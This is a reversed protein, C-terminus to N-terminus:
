PRAPLVVRVSVAGRLEGPSYGVAQDAPYREAIVAKVEAPIQTPDGHCTTCFPQLAIPRLYRLEWHEDDGGRAVEMVEGPMTGALQQEALYTLLRSEISDPANAPNRLRTGVRRVQLGDRSHAATRAQASDACVAVASVPGNANLEAMLMQALDPALADAAARARAVSASDAEPAAAPPAAERATCATSALSVLALLMKLPRM